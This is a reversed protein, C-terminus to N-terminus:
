FEGTVDDCQVNSPHIHFKFTTAVRLFVALEPQETRSVVHQYFILSTAFLGSVQKTNGKRKTCFMEIKRNEGIKATNQQVQKSSGANM